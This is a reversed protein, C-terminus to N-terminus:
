LCNDPYFEFKIKLLSVFIGANAPKEKLFEANDNRRDRIDQNRLLLRVAEQFYNQFITHSLQYESTKDPFGAWYPPYLRFSFGPQKKKESKRFYLLNKSAAATFFIKIWNAPSNKGKLEPSFQHDSTSGCCRGNLNPATTGPLLFAQGPPCQNLNINKFWFPSHHL